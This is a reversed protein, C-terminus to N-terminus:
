DEVETVYIKKGNVIYFGPSTVKVLKRGQLDYIVNVQGNEGEVEDLETTPGGMPLSYMAAAAQAPNEEDLLYAKNANCRVYGGKNHNRHAGTATSAVIEEDANIYVYNGDAGRNEYTWYFAVRGSKKGLMYVNYQNGCHVLKNYSTGKLINGTTDFTSEEDTYVFEAAVNQADTTESSLVVATNAPLIGYEVPTMVLQGNENVGEVISATIGEPIIANYALYLTSYAKTDAGATNAGLSVTQKINAVADDMEVESIVWASAKDVAANDWAKVAGPKATCNLMAGGTPVISVVVAGNSTGLTNIAISKANEIAEADAGVQVNSNHANAEDLYTGTHLSKMYLNGNDDYEFTFYFRANSANYEGCALKANDDIQMSAGARADTLGPTIDIRYIKGEEPVIKRITKCAERLDTYATRCEASDSTNGASVLGTTATYAASYANGYEYAGVTTGEPKGATMIELKGAFDSLQYYHANANDFEADVFKFLSGGDNTNWGGAWIGLKTTVNFGGNHSLCAHNTGNVYIYYYDTCGEVASRTFTWEAYAPEAAILAKDRGDSTTEVGLVNGQGNFPKILYGNEGKMFYWAQYSANATADVITVNNSAPEDFQLVKGGNNDRKSIIKYLMPNEEDTTIRVPADHYKIAEALKDYEAQLATVANSYDEVTLAAGKYVETASTIADEVEAVLDATTYIYIDPNYESKLELVIDTCEYVNFDRLAFYPHNKSKGNGHTETVMFRWYRYAVGNGLVGTKKEDDGDPLNTLTAITTWEGGNELSNCAEVVVNKPLLSNNDVRRKYGFEIYETAGGDGLDVRLYHDLGDESDYDSYMTHLHNTTDEDLLASVGIHDSTWPSYSEVANCYLYGANGETASLDIETATYSAIEYLSNKLLTTEDILKKLPEKVKAVLENYAAQLEGLATNYDGELAYHGLVVEAQLKEAVAVAILSYVGDAEVGENLTVRKCATMEFHSMAFFPHENHTDNNVTATVMFRIYRYPKGNTIEGSRYSTAPLDAITTIEEWEGTELDNCGEILMETPANNTNSRPIYAFKFSLLNSEGMDVRLYHDLDDDAADGSYATHLHTSTVPEGNDDVDLLAVVGLNDGPYTTSKEPANCYIYYPATADDCQLHLKAEVVDVDTAMEGVFADTAAILTELEERTKYDRDVVSKTVNYCSSLNAFVANYQEETVYHGVAYEATELALTLADFELGEATTYYEDLSNSLSAYLNFDAMHFFGRESGVAIRIYRYRGGLDLLEGMSWKENTNAALGSTIEEIGNYNVKDNSGLIKIANPRQDAHTTNRTTYDMSLEGITIGAGFDIEIYHTYAPVDTGWDTGLFTGTNATGDANKDILGAVGNSDGAPANCWIYYPADANTSQLPIAITKATEFVMPEYMAKVEAILDRLETRDGTFCAEKIAKLREYVANLEGYAVAIEDVTTSNTYVDGAEQIERILEAIDANTLAPSYADKAEGEFAIEQYLTQAVGLLELLEAKPVSVSNDTEQMAEELAAKAATLAAIQADLLETSTTNNMLTEADVVKSNTAVLLEETVDTNKYKEKVTVVTYAAKTLGFKAMTFYPYGNDDAVDGTTRSIETVRFRLYRYPISASGLAKSVFVSNAGTAQPLGANAATLTAIETFTDKTSNDNDIENAGEIVITKPMDQYLRNATTYTFYFEGISKGEGMDVRLYHYDNDASTGSWQTHMFSTNSDDFIDALSGEAITANCYVNSTSLALTEDPYQTFTGAAAVLSNTEDILAQLEAKKTDAPSNYVALLEDYATQLASKVSSYDTANGEIAAEAAVVANYANKVYDEQVYQYEPDVNIYVGNLTPIGFEAIYFYKHGNGDTKSDAAYTDTVMFRIYRYSKGNTLEASTYVTSYENPLGESITAIEEFTSLDNSGEVKIVKPHSKSDGNHRTKYSFQVKSLSNGEGMDLRLYHHLGDQSNGSYVTHLFTGDNRDLINYGNAPMSADGGSTVNANCWLYFPANADTTQLNCPIAVGIVDILAETKAVLAQLEDTAASAQNGDIATLYWKTATSETNWGVIRGETGSDASHLYTFEGAPTVGICWVGQKDTSQITYSAASALDAVATMETSKSAAPLYYSNGVNQVKYVGDTGTSVFKWTKYESTGTFARVVKTNPNLVIKQSPYAYSTITYTLSQDFPVFTANASNALFKEKETYLIECAAAYGGNGALITKASELAALLDAASAKTYFGVHRYSGDDIPMAEVDAIFSELMAKQMPTLDIEAEFTENSATVAVISAKGTVLQYKAEENLTFTSKNSFSVLEGNENLVLFGVGGKGGSMTLTGDSNLMATYPTTAVNGAIFDTVSGFDSNPTTEGYIVRQTKGDHQLYTATDDDDNIFIISLNEKLPNGEADRMAKVEAIAEDIMAQSVNYISNSYDGVFRDEMVSFYGHARFFETLDEGAAQCVLKYFHLTSVDGAQQYARVMPEHRLLEFLRPYFQTNNGALHYYLWLRYYLHTLAWINNTYIDSGVSNFANLVSELSGENGNYRSTSMGKYWLAINSFLNNTVETLGNLTFLGQHQHGIEHAPGWTSGATNPLDYVAAGFGQIPYGVHDGSGYPNGGGTGLISGHHNFYESYDVGCFDELNSYDYIEARTGDANWRPYFDNMKAMDAKSLLGMTALQSYMIRDWAEMVINIKGTSPDCGMGYEAWSQAYSYPTSPCNVSEPLLSKLGRQGSEDEFQLLLIERHGLIPLVSLNAREEMYEWDADKDVSAGTFTKWLDEADTTARFDGCANYFGNIAGGEIHIKLPAYNSLKRNEPFREAATKGEHNYTDVNYCIYLMGGSGYCPIINLGTKLEYGLEEVNAIRNNSGADVIRLSAGQAIEGQVMVYVLGRKHIYVGTPNDNNSHWNIGLWSTVGDSGTRAYSYPEYMQVRFKKAYDNNWSPKGSVANPEEWNRANIKTVMAQLEHPLAAYNAENTSYSYGDKFATCSKDSFINDLLAQYTAVKNMESHLDGIADWNAQLESDSMEVKNFVWQTASASTGWGVVYGENAGYHMNDYDNSSNTLSLTHNDGAVVYYLDSSTTSLTWKQSGGAGQLYLGNEVNRVTYSDDTNGPEVYWLQANDGTDTVKLVVRDTGSTTMSSTNTAVNVINYVGRQLQAWSTSSLMLLVAVLLHTFIRKMKNKTIIKNEVTLAGKRLLFLKCVFGWHAVINM